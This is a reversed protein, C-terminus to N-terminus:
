NVLYELVFKSGIYAFLLFLFGSLTWRIATKGRWGYQHRGWLLLAFVTWSVLTLVTKHVLHQAFLDELFMFGTILGLTLLVFGILILQFLRHEMLQLPPLKRILGTMKKQRIQKEQIALVVSQFAALTFFSYAALSFLVHWELAPDSLGQPTQGPLEVKLMLSLSILPFVIMGPHAKSLKLGVIFIVFGMLWTSVSLSSFLSLDWGGAAKMTFFIDTAHFLLAMFILINVPINKVPANPDQQVFRRILIVSSCLYLIFAFANAIAM